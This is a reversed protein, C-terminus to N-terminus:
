AAIEDELSALIEGIGFPVGLLIQGCYVSGHNMIEYHYIRSIKCIVCLVKVLLCCCKVQTHYVLERLFMSLVLVLNSFFGPDSICARCFKVWLDERGDRGCHPSITTAFDGCFRERYNIAFNQCGEDKRGWLSDCFIALYNKQWNLPM